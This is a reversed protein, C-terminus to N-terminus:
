KINCHELILELNIKAQKFYVYTHVYTCHLRKTKTKLNM